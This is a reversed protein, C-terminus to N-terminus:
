TGQHCTSKLGSLKRNKIGKKTTPCNKKILCLVLCYEWSLILGFQCNKFEEVKIKLPSAKHCVESKKKKKMFLM